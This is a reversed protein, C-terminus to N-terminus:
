LVITLINSFFLIITIPTQNDGLILTDCKMEITTQPHPSYIFIVVTMFGPPLQNEQPLM